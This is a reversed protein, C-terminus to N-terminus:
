WRQKLGPRSAHNNFQQYCREAALWLPHRDGLRSAIKTINKLGDVVKCKGHKIKKIEEAIERLNRPLKGVFIGHKVRPATDLFSATFKEFEAFSQFLTAKRKEEEIFQELGSCTQLSIAKIQNQREQSLKEFTRRVYQLEKLTALRTLSLLYKYATWFEIRNKKRVFDSLTKLV